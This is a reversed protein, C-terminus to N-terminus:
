EFPYSFGWGNDGSTPFGYWHLVQFGPTVFDDVTCRVVEGPEISAPLGPCQVPFDELLFAAQRMDVTDTEDLNTLGVEVCFPECSQISVMVDGSPDAIEPPQYVSICQGIREGNPVSELAPWLPGVQGAKIATLVDEGILDSVCTESVVAQLPWWDTAFTLVAAEFEDQFTGSSNTPNLQFGGPRDAIQEFCYVEDRDSALHTSLDVNGTVTWVEVGAVVFGYGMYDGRLTNDAVM